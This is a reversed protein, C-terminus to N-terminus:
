VARRRLLRTGVVILILPVFCKRVLASSIASFDQRFVYICAVLMIIYIPLFMDDGLSLRYLSSIFLGMLVGSIVISFLKGNLFAEGVGGFGKNIYFYENFWQTGTLYFTVGFPKLIDGIFSPYIQPDSDLFRMFNRGTAIFENEALVGIINSLDRETGYEYSRIVGLMFFIFIGLFLLSFARPVSISKFRLYMIGGMAIPIMLVDREELVVYGSLGFVFFIFAPLLSIKGYEKLDFLLVYLFPLYMGGYFSIFVSVGQLNREAKHMGESFFLAPLFFLGFMIFVMFSVKRSIKIKQFIRNRLLVTFFTLRASHMGFVLSALFLLSFRISEIKAAESILWLDPGGAILYLHFVGYYLSFILPLIFGPSGFDRRSIFENISFCLAFLFQSFVLYSYGMEIFVSSLCASFLVLPSIFNRNKIM